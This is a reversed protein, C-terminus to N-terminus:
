HISIVKGSINPELVQQLFKYSKLDILGNEKRAEDLLNFLKRRADPGPNQNRWQELIKFKLRKIDGRVSTEYTVIDHEPINLYQRAIDMLNNSSVGSGIKNLEEDNIHEDTADYRVKKSPLMSGTCKEELHTDM